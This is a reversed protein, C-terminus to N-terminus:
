CCSSGQKGKIQCCLYWYKNIYTIFYILVFLGNEVSISFNSIDYAFIELLVQKLFSDKDNQLRKL